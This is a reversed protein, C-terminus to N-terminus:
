NDIPLLDLGFEINISLMKYRLSKYLSIAKGNDSFVVLTAETKGKNKLYKLAETIMTKAIGKRRWEPLVFINETASRDEGLGWTMVSGVIIDGDFVTFTDWETGGKTWKLRNLSWCLGEAQTEMKWNVINLNNLLPVNPIDETLDRKM